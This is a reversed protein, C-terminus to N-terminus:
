YNRLGAYIISPNTINYVVASVDKNADLQFTSWQRGEDVSKYIAKESVYIIERSNRPNITLSRIPFKKSSELINVAQWDDGYNRSKALGNKLGIYVTGSLFPDAVVSFVSQGNMTTNIKESLNEFNKGADKTRLFGRQFVGFYVVNSNSSDFAISNVPTEAKYLNHWSAGADTTKFIMGESTGAYLVTPNRKDIVLASIVTGDSPETYIEKWEGEKEIKKYIKARGNLVGSAYIVDPTKPDLALGYVKEPFNMQAWTEAGDRSIFIGNKESGLYIINEDFPDIAMSLANVSSITKKDDVKTKAEWSVGGDLTKIVSAKSISNSNEPVVPNSLSCGSLFISIIALM